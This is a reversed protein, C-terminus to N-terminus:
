KDERELKEFKDQTSGPKKHKYDFDDDSEDLNYVPRRESRVRLREVLSSM